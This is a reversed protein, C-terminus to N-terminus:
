IGWLRRLNKERMKRWTKRGGSIIKRSVSNACDNHDAPYVDPVGVKGNSSSGLGLIKALVAELDEPLINAKICCRVISNQSIDSWVRDIEEAADLLYLSYGENFGKTGRKLHRNQFRIEDRQPLISIVKDLM